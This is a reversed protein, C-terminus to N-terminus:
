GFVNRFAEFNDGGPIAFIVNDFYPYKQLANQFLEAVECANQRFVGCGWAGLILTNVDHSAAVRLMFEIRDKLAETNQVRTVNNRKAAGWNPCACTIVDCKKVEDTIFVIDESYLAANTYLNYNIKRKNDDYYQCQTSLVPYLTSNHCLDEEQAVCGKIFGGGPNKYSAFNLVATKGEGYKFIASISDMYVMKINMVPKKPKLVQADGRHIHTCEISHSIEKGFKEKMDNVHNIAKRAKTM